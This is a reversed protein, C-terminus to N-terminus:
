KPPVRSANATWHHSKRGRTSNFTEFCVGVNRQHEGRSVPLVGHVFRAYLTGHYASHGCHETRLVNYIHKAV